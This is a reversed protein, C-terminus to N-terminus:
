VGQNKFKQITVQFVFSEAGFFSPLDIKNIFACHQVATMQVAHSLSTCNNVKINLCHLIFLLRKNCALFLIDLGTSILLPTCM